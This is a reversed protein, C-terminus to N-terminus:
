THDRAHGRRKTLWWRSKLGDAHMTSLRDDEYPPPKVARGRAPHRDGVAEPPEASGDNPWNSGRPVTRVQQYLGGALDLM